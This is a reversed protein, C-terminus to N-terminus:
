PVGGEGCIRRAESAVFGADYPKPIIAAVPRAPSREGYASSYIIPTTGTYTLLFTEGDMVPMREDLLICDFDEKALKDLADQGNVARVAQCKHLIKLSEVVSIIANDDDVLLIKM